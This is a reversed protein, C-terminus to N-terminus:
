LELMGFIYDAIGLMGVGIQQGIYAGAYFVFCEVRHGCVLRGVKDGLEAIHSVVPEYVCQAGHLLSTMCHSRRGAIGSEDIV